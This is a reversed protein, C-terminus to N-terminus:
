EQRMGHAQRKEDIKRKLKRDIGGEKGKREDAIRNQIIKMGGNQRATVCRALETLNPPPNMDIFVAGTHQKDDRHTCDSARGTGTQFEHYSLNTETFSFIEGPCRERLYGVIYVRKRSQPVGFDTSNLVQWAIDYELESLTRLITAFMRGKDHSLLGPVNELLLYAPRKVAAIRAIEFYGICEFGGVAELGSRFGGIGAFMDFITNGYPM